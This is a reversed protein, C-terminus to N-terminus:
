ATKVEGGGFIVVGEIILVKNPDSVLYPNRKVREDSFGGFIATPKFKVTWDEPVFITCGGFICTVELVNEGESLVADRFNLETGGFICTIEGGNFNKSSVSKKQGSFINFEDLKDAELNSEPFRSWEKKRGGRINKPLLMSLGIIIIVAPIVFRVLDRFRWGFVDGTLFAAGVLFIILGTSKDRSSLMLVVGLVMLITKWSFLYGPVFFPILDFFRLFLFTGILVFVLGLLSRNSNRASM